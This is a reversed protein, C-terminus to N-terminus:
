VSFIDGGYVALATYLTSGYQRQINALAADVCMVGVRQPRLLLEPSINPYVEQLYPYLGTFYSDRDAVLNWDLSKADAAKLEAEIRFWDALKTRVGDVQIEWQKFHEICLDEYDKGGVSKRAINAMQLGKEYGRLFKPSERKGIYATRGENPDSHTICDMKPPRGGGNFKGAQHAEVVSEYSVSGDYFDAAIDVRRLRADDLDVMSETLAEVRDELLQCGQGSVDCYLRGGQGEGGWALMAVQAENVTLDAAFDFRLAGRKRHSLTVRGVPEFFRELARCVDDLRSKTSVALRDIKTQKTM